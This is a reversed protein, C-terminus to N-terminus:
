WAKRCYFGGSPKIEEPLQQIDSRTKLPFISANAFGGYHERLTNSVYCIHERQSATTDIKHRTLFEKFGERLEMSLVRHNDTLQNNDRPSPVKM